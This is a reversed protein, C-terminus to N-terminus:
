ADDANEYAEGSDEGYRYDDVQDEHRLRDREDAAHKRKAAARARRHEDVDVYEEVDEYAELADDEFPTRDPM